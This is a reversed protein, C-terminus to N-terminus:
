LPARKMERYLRPLRDPTPRVKEIVVVAREGGDRPLTFPVTERVRGGLADIAPLAHAMEDSLSPGKMALFVGGVAAFPLSFESLLRMAAVARALVVDYRERHAPDHGFDEARGALTEVDTWGFEQIIFDVFSLKKRTSDLLAVRLDPRAIKLALGPFGAGTGVDIVRAGLPFPYAKLCTLSDLIHKVAVDEASRVATLNMRENWDSLHSALRRFAVAQDEELLINLESAGDLLIRQFHETDQDNM